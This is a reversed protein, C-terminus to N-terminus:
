ALPLLCGVPFLAGAEPLPHPPQRVSRPLRPPQSYTNPRGMRQFILLYAIGPLM